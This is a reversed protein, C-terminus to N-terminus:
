GTASYDAWTPADAGPRRPPTVWRPAYGDLEGPPRVFDLVGFDSDLTSVLDDPYTAAGAPPDAPSRGLGDLWRATRALSLRAHWSGGVTHRRRLGEMAAMAALWGTGHDLVQSPLAVPASEGWALGTALQVLSDFGRRQRWPGAQGWASISVYVLGPRLAACERAGFGLAELAGPRYAQVVVDAASVLDRLADRGPDTRLDLHCFRKGFGTDVVLAAVLALHAAGVRLVDAGYAALTRGAVPGAIVRTLDLVRVGELPREAVPLPSAPSDGIREWEVLPLAAVARGQPHAAWEGPPRLAAAAGGAAVVADEVDLAARDGVAAAVRERDDPVGLARVIAERHAPYNAHLRVWGDATRYDGSLDAWMAPPKGDVRLYRESRFAMAAHRVDVRARPAPGGRVQWLRGAALTAAAVTAAAAADVRYPSTLVPGDGIVDLQPADIDMDQCIDAVASTVTKDVVDVRSGGAGGGRYAEGGVFV